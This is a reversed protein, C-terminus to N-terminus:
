TRTPQAPSMHAAWSERGVTWRFIRKWKRLVSRLQSRRVADFSALAFAGATAMRLVAAVSMAVRYTMAYATGRTKALFQYVAQRTLVDGFGNDKKKSSQGGYHIVTADSVFCVQRGLRAMKYCLDLDEAYMFYDTSFM